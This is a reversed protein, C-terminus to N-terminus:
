VWNVTHKNFMHVEKKADEREKKGMQPDCISTFQVCLGVVLHQIGKIHM